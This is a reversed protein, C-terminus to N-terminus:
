VVSTTQTENVFKMLDNSSVTPSQEQSNDIRIIIAASASDASVERPAEEFSLLLNVLKVATNWQGACLEITCGNEVGAGLLAMRQETLRQLM